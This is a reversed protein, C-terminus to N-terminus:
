DGPAPAIGYPAAGYAQFSESCPKKGKGQGKGKCKPNVAYIFGTADALWLYKTKHDFNINMPQGTSDNFLNSCNSTGQCAYLGAPTKSTSNIEDVYYLDDRQDFVIGGIKPIGSLILSGSGICGTFEVVSGTGGQNPDNFAWYCDGRHSIAIGEGQIPDSGYTLIRSPETQRNLYISVSGAGGSTSSQNSLAVLRRSSTAAVNDPFWGYDDLTGVPGTPGHNTSQYILANAHGGNAVYWYGDPTAYTGSPASLGMYIMGYPTLTLGQRQYIEADNGYLQVTYMWSTHLPATTRLSGPNTVLQAASVQPAASTASGNACGSLLAISAFACFSFRAAINLPM